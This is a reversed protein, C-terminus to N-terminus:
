FYRGGNNIFFLLYSDCVMVFSVGAQRCAPVIVFLDCVINIIIRTLKHPNTDNTISEHNKHVLYAIKADNSMDIM